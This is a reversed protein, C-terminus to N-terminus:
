RKANARLRSIKSLTRCFKRDDRPTIVEVLTRFDVPCFRPLSPFVACNQASLDYRFVYHRAARY